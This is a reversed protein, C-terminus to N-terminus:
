SFPHPPQSTPAKPVTHDALYNFEALLPDIDTGTRKQFFVPRQAARGDNLVQLAGKIAKQTQELREDSNKWQQVRNLLNNLPVAVQWLVNDSGLPVRSNLNGKAVENHVQAIVAIGEELQKQSQVQKREFETVEAQLAIIEEARDARMITSRLNSMIVYIVVAVIIQLAIPLALLGSVLRFSMSDYAPTHKQLVAILLILAINFMSDILAAVPPMLTGALILPIVLTSFIPILSPDLPSILLTGTVNIVGCLVLMSAGALNFGLKNFIIALVVVFLGAIAVISGGLGASNTFGYPTFAATILFVLLTFDTTLRAYRTREREAPSTDPGRRPLSIRHWWEFFTKM